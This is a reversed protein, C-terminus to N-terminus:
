NAKGYQNGESIVKFITKIPLKSRESFIIWEEATLNSRMNFSKWHEYILKEEELAPDQTRGLSKVNLSKRLSSFEAANIGVLDKLLKLPAGAVILKKLSKRNLSEKRVHTFLSRLLKNDIQISAFHSPIRALHLIESMTADELLSRIEPNIGLQELSKMDGINHCECLYLLLANNLDSRLNKFTSM